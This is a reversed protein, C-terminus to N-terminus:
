TVAATQDTFIVVALFYSRSRWATNRNWHGRFILSWSFAAFTVHQILFKCQLAKIFPWAFRAPFELELRWLVRCEPSPKTLHSMPASLPSIFRLRPHRGRSKRLSFSDQTRRTASLDGVVSSGCLMRGRAKLCFWTHFPLSVGLDVQLIRQFLWCWLPERKYFLQWGSDLM